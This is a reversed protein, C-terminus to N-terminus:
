QKSGETRELQEVYQRLMQTVTQAIEEPKLGHVLLSSHPGPPPEPEDKKPKRDLFEVDWLIQNTVWDVVKISLVPPGPHQKKPQPVGKKLGYKTENDPEIASVTLDVGEPNATIRYKGWSRLDEAVWQDLSVPMPAVYVVKASVLKNPKSTPAQAGAVLNLILSVLVGRQLMGIGARVM